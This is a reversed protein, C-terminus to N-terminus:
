NNRITLIYESNEEDVTYRKGEQDPYLKIRITRDPGTTDIPLLAVAATSTGQAVTAMYLMNGSAGEYPQHSISFDVDEAATGSLEFFVPYDFAGVAASARIEAFLYDESNDAVTAGSQVFGIEPVPPAKVIEDECSSFLWLAAIATLTTLKSM